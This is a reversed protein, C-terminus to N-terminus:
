GTARHLEYRGRIESAQAQIAAKKAPAIRVLNRVQMQMRPNKELQQRHRLLFDWYMTTFPCAVDGTAQAPDYRCGTCYNSMRDIYKGSAIYPKSAMVGGDGYQSMGITNPLEAWEVADVYVALYWLHVERPQVGLLLAFLGTVMLRQIHHAYGYQLTQELTQRLCSMDTEATWYFDPLPLSAQLHNRTEYEPMFQWYIGRVYERWGLIQRIFGEVAALPARGDHWLQEAARVVERPDLLKLNLSSSLRSHYLLPENTWMADQHKGFAALRNQIFDDLAALAETRTVPFDFHQLKGPHGAFREEVLRLVECTISDPAFTLPKALVGPGKRGFGARNEVDFNWHGTVPEDGNMLVNCRLRMRRYFSEMRLQNRGNAWEAFDKKTCFFHRDDVIRLPVGADSVLVEQVRWEGPEAVVLESPSLRQIAARLEAALTGRNNEAELCRYDVTYGEATLMQRFHRMATLFMAIRVKHSWAYTSESSVEAMWVVDSAPDFDSFVSSDRNLQDGLVIVLRRV